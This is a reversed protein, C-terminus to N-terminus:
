ARLMEASDLPGLFEHELESPQYRLRQLGAHAAVCREDSWLYTADRDHSVWEDAARRLQSRLRIDDLVSEIWRGIRPWNTLLAEHAVEIVPDTGEGAVLLRAKVFTEVLSAALPSQAVRSLPARRRTPTSGEEVAVLERFVEGLLDEKSDSAADGRGGALPFISAWVAEARTVIAGKVGGFADYAEHTLRGSPERAEYLQYLAFAMLPLAGPDSGTDSLIRGALGEDFFLGARHAPKTIMEFLSDTRAAALPYSGVRLLEAIDPHEVCRPYYDARVTIV